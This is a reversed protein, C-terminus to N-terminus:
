IYMEDIQKIEVLLWKCSDVYKLVRTITPVVLHIELFNPITDVDFMNLM